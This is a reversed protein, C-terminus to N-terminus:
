VGSSFEKRDNIVDGTGFLAFLVLLVRGLRSSLACHTGKGEREENSARAGEREELSSLV